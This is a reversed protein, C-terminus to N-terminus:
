VTALWHPIESSDASAPRWLTRSELLIGDDALWFHCL